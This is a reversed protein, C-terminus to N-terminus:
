EVLIESQIKQIANRHDVFVVKPHHKRATTEEIMAYSIIIVKDGTQAWRAAAGNM